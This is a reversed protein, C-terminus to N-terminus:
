REDLPFHTNVGPVIISDAVSVEGAETVISKPENVRTICTAEVSPLALAEKRQTDQGEAVLNELM